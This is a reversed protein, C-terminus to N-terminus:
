FESLHVFGVVWDNQTVGQKLSIYKLVLDTALDDKGEHKGIEAHRERNIV